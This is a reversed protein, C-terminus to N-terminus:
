RAGHIRGANAQIANKQAPTLAPSAMAKEYFSLAERWDGRREALVGLNNLAEGDPSLRVSAALASAAGSNDGKMLLITGLTRWAEAARNPGPAEGSAAISERATREASGRDGARWEWIAWNMLAGSQGPGNLSKALRAADRAEPMRGSRALGDARVWLATAYASKSVRVEDGAQATGQIVVARSETRFVSSVELEGAQAGNRWLALRNRLALGDVAGLGFTAMGDEVKIVGASRLPLRDQTGDGRFQVPAASVDTLRGALIVPEGQPRSLTPSQVVPVATPSQWKYWGLLAAAGIGAAIAWNAAARRWLPAPLPRAVPLAPHRSLMGDISLADFLEPDELSRAQLEAEEDPTLNGALYRALLHEHSSRPGTM